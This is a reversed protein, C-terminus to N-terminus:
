DWNDYDEYPRERETLHDTRVEVKAGRHGKLFPADMGNSRSRLRNYAAFPLMKTWVAPKRFNDHSKVPTGPPWYLTTPHFIRNSNRIREALIAGVKLAGEEEYLVNM